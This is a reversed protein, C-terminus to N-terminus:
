AHVIGSAMRKLASKDAKFVHTLEGPLLISVKQGVKSHADGTHRLTVLKEDPTRIYLFFSEGLEEVVEVEGTISAEGGGISLHEPRVGVIVPDGAKMSSGDVKAVVSGGGPLRAKVGSRFLM